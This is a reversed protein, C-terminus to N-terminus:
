FITSVYQRRLLNRALRQVNWSCKRFSSSKKNRFSSRYPAVLAKLDINKYFCLILFFVVYLDSAIKETVFNNEDYYRIRQLNFTKKHVSVVM